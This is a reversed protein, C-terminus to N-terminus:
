TTRLVTPLVTCYTAPVTRYLVTSLCTSVHQRRQQQHHSNNNALAALQGIRSGYRVTRHRHRTVVLTVVTSDYKNSTYEQTANM